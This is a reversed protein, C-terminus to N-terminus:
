QNEAQKKSLKTIVKVYIGDLVKPQKAYYALSKNFQKESTNFTSYVENFLKKQDIISDQSSLKLKILAQTFEIEAIVEVMKDEPIIEGPLENKNNCCVLVITTLLLVIHSINYKM